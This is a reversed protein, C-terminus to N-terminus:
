KILNEDDSKIIIGNFKNEEFAENKSIFLDRQEKSPEGARDCEFFM